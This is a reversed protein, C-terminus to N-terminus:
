FTGRLGLSGPGVFLQTRGRAVADATPETGEGGGETGEGEAPQDVLDWVLLGAGAALGVIGIVLTVNAGTQYGKGSDATDQYSTPCVGGPCNDELESYNSQAMGGLVGFLVMGVVGVGGAGAALYLRNDRLWNSAEDETIEVDPPPPPPPAGAGIEVTADAGAAVEVQKPESGTLEVTISGPKVPVPKGWADRPVERGGVMLRADPSATTAMNVTVLGIQPRIADALTRAANATDQYKPNSAAAAQAAEATATAEAWAEDSRGMDNLVQAIMIRSNPSAVIGYSSQYAALAEDYRKADYAAKAKDYQVKAQTKQEDTAQEVPIGQALADSALTAASLSILSAAVLPLWRFRRGVRPMM